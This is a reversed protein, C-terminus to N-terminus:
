REPALALLVTLHHNKASSVRYPTEVDTGWSDIGGVGRMAAYLTLYTHTTKPLDEMHDAAELELASNPLASFAFPADSMEIALTGETQGAANQRHLRLSQTQMHCGCDQPVLYAPIHPQESHAGFVGGKYRDPYTEGSLGVWDVRAVPAPTAFQVGFCPLEPLGPKGHYDATMTMTGDASVTYRLIASAGPVADSAFHYSVSVARATCETVEHGTCQAGYDAALWAASRQPFRCGKDNETAARWFVPRPARYLWETGQRRISAPGNETWSFLVEFGDGIVGLNVDGEIIKLDARASGATQRARQAAILEKKSATAAAANAADQAAREAASRHWYRVEQLAPKESGDAFVIGNGSFAYDTPREGFDGGYGLVRRGLADTHWLAQDMYDWIFGGQYQEFEENLLMYSGMGGLSNGMDHMYECSLFPKAPKAALYARIEEPKAYMRSEVDSIKEWAPDYQAKGRAPFVGEYHVLRGPDNQHFFESMALIDAGAYSENGCSWFLVATHNKDREFMAKARELVCDRWEPKDGPVNWSPEVAGMKQWSGHSELNTEDMMYIGNEDCLDYWLSQNPYHCTRVANINARHFTAMARHMDEADIARGKGPNWEHRNVGNFFIRAGNLYMVGNIMEFRRFGTKYAVREVEGGAAGCLRLTVTYLVPDGHRWPRVNALNVPAAQYTGAATECLKLPTDCLVAGDPASVTCHVAAGALTTGEAASLKLQPALTGTKNDGALEAHLWLDEIHLEPKAYLFVPRFMGFFRFFDQDELWAASSRKYVEVCLRNGEDKVFPTLDFDAPTFSDESYGVFRGNCWLAFAQEVGQFSVCVRKGRLAPALDFHRVYSGVPCDEWAIQPPRLAHRGDWPYMTNIYQLQGYGQMEIHGPVAIQGFATLDAGDQWFDAPRDAPCDSYVFAWQGDLPQRLAQGGVTVSHDSHAPLRNVAFVTPDALWKVDFQQAQM